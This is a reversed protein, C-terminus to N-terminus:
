APCSIGARIAVLTRPRHPLAPLLHAVTLGPAGTVKGAGGHDPVPRRVEPIGGPFFAAPSAVPSLSSVSASFPTTGIRPVPETDDPGDRGTITLGPWEVTSARRPPPAPPLPLGLDRTLSTALVTGPPCLWSQALPYIRCRRRPPGVRSGPQRCLWCRGRRDVAHELLLAYLGAAARFTVSGFGGPGACEAADLLADRVQRRVMAHATQYVSPGSGCAQRGSDGLTM